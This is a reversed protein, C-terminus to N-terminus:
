HFKLSHQGTTGTTLRLSQIPPPKSHSKLAPRMCTKATLLLRPRLSKWWTTNAGGEVDYKLEYTAVSKFNATLDSNENLTYTFQPDTSVVNGSADTWNVFHFGFNPNVSLSIESGAEYEAAKPYVTLAAAEEPSVSANLTYLAVEETTGNFVGNIIINSLAINKTSATNSIYFRFAFENVAKEPITVSHGLQATAANAGNNRLVTSADVKTITSETGDLVYSYSFTANDTGVKVADYKVESPTFTIGKAAKIRYEIMAGAVTGLNDSEPTYKAMEQDFYTATEVKLSSGANVGATSYAGNIASDASPESENGVAWTLTGAVNDFTKGGTSEAVPLVVQVYRMYGIDSGAM